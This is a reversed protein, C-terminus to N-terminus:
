QLFTNLRADLTKKAKLRSELDVYQKTVDEGTIRQSEVKDVAKSVESIFSDFKPQPIRAVVTGGQGDSEVKTVESQVTYGGAKDILNQVNRQAHNFEKVIVTLDANYIIMQKNEPNPAESNGKNTKGSDASSKEGQNIAMDTSIQRSVSKSTSSSSNNASNKSGNNSCATLGVILFVCLLWSLWKRRM